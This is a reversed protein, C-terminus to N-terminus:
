GSFDCKRKVNRIQEDLNEVNGNKGEVDGEQCVDKLEVIQMITEVHGFLIEAACEVVGEDVLIEGLVAHAVNLEHVLVVVQGMWHYASQGYIEEVFHEVKNVPIPKHEQERASHGADEM